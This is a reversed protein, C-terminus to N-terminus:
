ADRVKVHLAEILPCSMAGHSSGCARIMQALASEIRKLDALKARVDQLKREGLERAQDCHMGDDLQLLGAVEDLSFGLRQASKIFQLRAVDDPGYRRFSGQPREPEGLLGKRQYFRITEVHVGAARAVAGITLGNSILQM